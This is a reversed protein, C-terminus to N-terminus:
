EVVFERVAEVPSEDNEDTSRARLTYTGATTPTFITNVFVYNGDEQQVQTNILTAIVADDKLVQIRANHVTGGTEHTMEVKVNVPTNLPLDVDALPKVITVTVPYDNDPVAADDDNCSTFLLGSFLTLLFLLNKM